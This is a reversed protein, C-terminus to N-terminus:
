PLIMGSSWVAVPALRICSAYLVCWVELVFIITIPQFFYSYFHCCHPEFGRGKPSAGSALAKSWEAM